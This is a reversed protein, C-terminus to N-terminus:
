PASGTGNATSANPDDATDTDPAICASKKPLKQTAPALAGLAADASVRTTDVYAQAAPERGYTTLRLYPSESDDVIWDVANITVCQKTTPAPPELGCTFVVAVPDGWAATAQADTTRATLSGISEPVRVAVEACEPANANRAPKLAVTPACGAMTLVVAIACVATFTSGAVRVARVASTGSTSDPHRYDVYAYELAILSMVFAGPMIGM